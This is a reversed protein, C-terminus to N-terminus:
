YTKERINAVMWIPLDLCGIPPLDFSVVINKILWGVSLGIAAWVQGDGLHGIPGIIIIIM